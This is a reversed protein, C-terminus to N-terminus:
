LLDDEDHIGACFPTFQMLIRSENPKEVLPSLTRKKTKTQKQKHKIPRTKVATAIYVSMAIASADALDQCPKPVLIHGKDDKPLDDVCFGLLRLLDICPGHQKIFQVIDLKSASGHGIVNAKWSSAVITDVDTFGQLELARKIIGGIEHLKYDYGSKSREVYAYAEIAVKTHEAARLKSPIVESLAELLYSEIHLYASMDRKPICPFLTLFVNGTDNQWVFDIERKRQAFAYLYWRNEVIDHITCAPSRFSIDLGVAFRPM